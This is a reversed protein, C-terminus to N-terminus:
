VGFIIWLTMTWLTMKLSDTAGDPGGFWAKAAIGQSVVRRRTAHNCCPVFAAAIPVAARCNRVGGARIQM